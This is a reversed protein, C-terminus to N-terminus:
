EMKKRGEAKLYGVGVVMSKHQPKQSLPSELILKIAPDAQLADSTVRSSRRVKFFTFRKKGENQKKEM